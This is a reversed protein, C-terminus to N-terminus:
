LNELMLRLKKRAYTLQSRSSSEGIGLMKGIEKHSYGEIASLNFVTRAGEPLQKICQHLHSVDIQEFEIEYDEESLEEYPVMTLGIKNKRLQMLSENIMIRYFWAKLSGEGQYQFKEIKTLGKYFGQNLVDFVDDENNLYRFVLRKMEDFFKDYFVRQAKRDNKVCLHHLEEETL